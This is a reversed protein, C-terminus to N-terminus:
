DAPLYRGVIAALRERAAPVVADPRTIIAASLAKACECTREIPLRGVANAIVRQATQANQQLNAIVM